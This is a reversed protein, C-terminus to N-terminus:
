IESQHPFCLHHQDLRTDSSHPALGHPHFVRGMPPKGDPMVADFRTTQRDGLRRFNQTHCSLREVVKYVAPGTNRRLHRDTEVLREATARLCPKPQLHGVVQRLGALVFGLNLDFPNHPPLQYLGTDQLLAPRPLATKRM